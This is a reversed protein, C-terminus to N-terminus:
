EDTDGEETDHGHRPCGADSCPMAPPNSCGIDEAPDHRHEWEADPDTTPTAGFRQRLMEVQHEVMGRWYADDINHEGRSEAAMEDAYLVAAGLLVEPADDPITRAGSVRALEAAADNYLRAHDQSARWWGGAVKNLREVEARARDLDARLGAEREAIIPLVADAEVTFEEPRAVDKGPETGCSENYADCLADLVQQRLAVTDPAVVVPLALVQRAFAVASPLTSVVVRFGTTDSPDGDLTNVLDVAAQGVEGVSAHCDAEATLWRAATEGLLPPLVRRSHEAAALLVSVDDIDVAPSVAPEPTTM